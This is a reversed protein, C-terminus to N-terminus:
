SLFGAQRARRLPGSTQLDARPKLGPPAYGDTNLGSYYFELGIVDAGTKRADLLRLFEPFDMNVARVDTRELKAANFEYPLANSTFIVKADPNGEKM